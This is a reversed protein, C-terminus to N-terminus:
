KKKLIANETTLNDVKGHLREIASNFFKTFTNEQADLIEKPLIGAFSKFSNGLIQAGANFSM